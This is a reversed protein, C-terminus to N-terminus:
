TWWDRLVQEAPQGMMSYADREAHDEDTFWKWWYVGHLWPQPSAAALLAETARAQLAPDPAGGQGQDWPRAAAGTVARLGAECIIVPRDWRASLASLTELHARWGAVLAARTPDIRDDDVLPYYANVGISDFAPWDSMVEVERWWNAAYTLEGRYVARCRGAVETWGGPYDETARLYELGVVCLAAGVEESLRAYHEAFDGYREFWTPWAGAPNVDARSKGGGWFTNSWLHPKISVALGEHQAQEAARRLDDDTLSRDMSSGFSIETGDLDPLYGFPTLAVHTVGLEALRRLQVRCAESGYGIGRRHLHALNMGRHALPSPVLPHDLAPALPLGPPLVPTSPLAPPPATLRKRASASRREPM